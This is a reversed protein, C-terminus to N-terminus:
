PTNGPNSKNGGNSRRGPSSLIHQIDTKDRAEEM